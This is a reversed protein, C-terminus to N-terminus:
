SLCPNHPPLLRIVSISSFANPLLIPSLLPIVRSLQVIMHCDSLQCYVRTSALIQLLKWTLNVTGGVAQKTRTSMGECDKGREMKPPNIQNSGLPFLPTGM